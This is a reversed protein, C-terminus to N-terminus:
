AAVLEGSIHFGHEVLDQVVVQARESDVDGNGHDCPGDDLRAPWLFLRRVVAGIFFNNFTIALAFAKTLRHWVKLLDSPISVVEEIRKVSRKAPDYKRNIDGSILRWLTRWTLHKDALTHALFDTLQVILDPTREDGVLVNASAFFEDRLGQCRELQIARVRAMSRLALLLTAVILLAVGLHLM